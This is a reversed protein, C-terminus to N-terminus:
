KGYKYFVQHRAQTILLLNKKYSKELLDLQQLTAIAKNFKDLNTQAKETAQIILKKLEGIVIFQIVSGRLYPHFAKTKWLGFTLWYYFEKEENTEAILVFCNPCPNEL